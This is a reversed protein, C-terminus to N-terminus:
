VPVVRNFLIILKDKKWFPIIVKRHFAKVPRTMRPAFLYRCAIFRYQFYPDVRRFPFRDYGM